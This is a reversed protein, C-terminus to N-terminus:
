LYQGGTSAVGASNGPFYNPGAANTQIIGNGWVNYRPGTATGTFTCNWGHVLGAQGIYAFGSTFSPVGAISIHADAIGCFGGSSYLHTPAAGVIDYLVGVRGVTIVGSPNSFIHALSCAGFRMNEFVIGCAAGAFLGAGVAGYDGAPGTATVTFNFCQIQAGAETLIAPVGVGNVVVKSADALNGQIKVAPGVCPFSCVGSSYIGDALQVTAQFGNLDIRDRIYNYAHTISAWATGTTLGNNADNGSPSVYFTIPATLRLRTLRAIAQLLQTRDTKLLILGSQEIVYCIEEQVANAWDARVITAEEGITPSGDTFYGPTGQQLPTPLAPSASPDDIRHM